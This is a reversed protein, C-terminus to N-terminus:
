TEKGLRGEQSWCCSVRDPITESLTQNYGRDPFISTTASVESGGKNWEHTWDQHFWKVSKRAFGSSSPTPWSPSRHHRTSVFLPAKDHIQFSEVGKLDQPRQLVVGQIRTVFSLCSDTCVTTFISELSEHGDWTDQLPSLLVLSPSLSLCDLPLPLRSSRNMDHIWKNRQKERQRREVQLLPSLSDEGKM